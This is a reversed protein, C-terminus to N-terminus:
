LNALKFYGLHLKDEPLDEEPTLEIHYLEKQELSLIDEIQYLDDVDIGYKDDIHSEAGKFGHHKYFFTEKAEKSAQARNDKVTLITYHQEEFKNEQYGGLNIFFLRKGPETSSEIKLRVSVRYGDVSTVERYGDIHINNKAEPWFKKIAPILEKLSHAIGFFFDHQEVNRGPARSGLLLMYLKPETNQEM